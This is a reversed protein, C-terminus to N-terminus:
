GEEIPGFIDGLISNGDGRSIPYLQYYKHGSMRGSFMGSASITTDVTWNTGNDSYRIEMRHDYFPNNVFWFVSSPTSFQITAPDNGRVTRAAWVVSGGKNIVIPNILSLPESM